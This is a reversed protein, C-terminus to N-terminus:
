NEIAGLSTLRGATRCLVRAGNYFARGREGNTNQPIQIHSDTLGGIVPSAGAEFMAAKPFTLAHSSIAEGRGERVASAALFAALPMESFCIAPRRGFVGRSGNRVWTAWLSHSRVACRLLFLASWITGSAINNLGFGDVYPLSRSSELDVERFFHVLRDSLDFRDNNWDM